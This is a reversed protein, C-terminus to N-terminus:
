NTMKKATKKATKKVKRVTEKKVAGAHKKLAQSINKWQNKLAQAYMKVEAETVTSNKSFSRAVSDVIQHYIKETVEKSSELKEIIEGKMRIMWGKLKDRNKKGSPGFFYYSAAALAAVGAGVAVMTTASVKKSKTNTNKKM